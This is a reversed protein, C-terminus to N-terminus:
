ANTSEPKVMREKLEKVKAEHEEAVQILAELIEINQYAGCLVQSFTNNAYQPLKQSVLGVYRKPLRAKLEALSEKNFLDTITKAEMKFTENKICKYLLVVCIICFTVFKNVNTIFLM